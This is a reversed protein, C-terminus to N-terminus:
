SLVLHIISLDNMHAHAAIKMFKIRFQYFLQVSLGDFVFSEWFLFVVIDSEAFVLIRIVSVRGHMVCILQLSEQGNIVTSNRVLYQRVFTALITFTIILLSWSTTCDARYHLHDDRISTSTLQDLM